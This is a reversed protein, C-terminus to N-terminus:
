SPTATMRARPTRRVVAGIALMLLTGGTLAAGLRVRAPAYRFRVTHEGPEIPVGRLLYDVRYMEREDGDVTVGWSPWFLDSVVLLALEPASVRLTVSEPEDQEVVVRAPVDVRASVPPWTLDREVVAEALPQFGPADMHALAADPDPVVVTRTVLFARPLADLNEYVRGDAADYVLRFRKTNEGRWPRGPAVVVYRVGLLDLRPWGAHYPPPYLRGSFGPHDENVDEFPRLFEHYAGVTLPEYDQVVRFGFLTGMKETVPFRNNWDKIVLARDFGIRERLFAVLPPPDFFGPANGQPIMIISGPQACREVVFLAVVVWAGAARVRSWPLLAIVGAVALVAIPYTARLNTRPSLLMLPASALVVTAGAWARGRSGVTVVDLGLGALLALAFVGIPLIAHPQRFLAVGPLHRFVLMYFPTM